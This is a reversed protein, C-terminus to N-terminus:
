SKNLSILYGLKYFDFWKLNPKKNKLKTLIKQENKKFYNFLVGELFTGKIKKYVKAVKVSDDIKGANLLENLNVLGQKTKDIFEDFSELGIHCLPNEIHLIEVRQQKLAIGFMTDEHGYGKISEDLRISLYVEKNILFNNTMFSQYPMEKRSTCSITERNVGYWWRFYTNSQPAQKSYNRGGYVVPAKEFLDVYRKVFKDDNVTSDCDLFLLNNYKAEEALLNRISARGVNKPLEKYIIQEQNKLVNNDEKYLASADDICLIEYDIQLQKCQQKLELVFSVVNFNYIPILVSLM